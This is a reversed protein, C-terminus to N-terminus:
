GVVGNERTRIAMRLRFRVILVIANLPVDPVAGIAVRAVRISPAPLGSKTHGM